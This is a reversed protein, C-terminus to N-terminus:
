PQVEIREHEGLSEKITKDIYEKSCEALHRIVVLYDTMFFDFGKCYPCYIDMPGHQGEM